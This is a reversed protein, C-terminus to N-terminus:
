KGSLYDVIKKTHAEIVQASVGWAECVSSEFVVQGVNIENSSDVVTVKSKITDCAAMIGVLLRAANPRMRYETILIDAKLFKDEDKTALLNRDSLGAKIQSRMTELVEAPVEVLEKASLSYNITLNRDAHYPLIVNSKVGGLGGCGTLFLCILGGTIWNNKIM